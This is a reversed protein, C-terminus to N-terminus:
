RGIGINPRAPEWEVKAAGLLTGTAEALDVLAKQYAALAQYEASQSNAYNTQAELVDTSTRMGLEFQRQEAQYLRGDLIASQRNALIQQWSAELRDLANLVEQEILAQRDERTALLQRRTYIAARLNSMAQQNGLPVTLGLTVVHDEFNKDRLVDYAENRTKGLGYFGYDYKLDLAPLTSNRYADITSVNKALEFELKLLDMRNEIGAALLKKKDFEFYVPDPDTTPDVVTPTEMSLDPRNLIRKLNRQKVRLDNEAAIITALQGALGAEARIIDVQPNQGADVFRRARDLQAEALEYQQKRVELVRRAAYLDWYARDAASVVNIIKLKTEAGAIQRDYEAVRVRHMNVRKGAGRLLPQSVSLGFSPDYSPNYTKGTFNTKTRDDALNFTVAGGTRLPMRVGLDIESMEAQSGALAIDTTNPHDTKVYKVNSYFAAEFLEAETSKLAENRITPSLLQAKLELNNEIALARCEELTLQIEGALANPEARVPAEAQPTNMEAPIFTEIRGLKEQPIRMQYFDDQELLKTCGAASLVALAVSFFVRKKVTRRRNM